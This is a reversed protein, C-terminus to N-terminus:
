EKFEVSIKERLKKTARDRIGRIQNFTWGTEQIVENYNKGEMYLLEVCKREHESLTGLATYLHERDLDNFLKKEISHYDKLHQNKLYSVHLQERRKADYFMNKMFVYLWSKFHIINEKQLKDCLKLFIDNTFDRADEHNKFHELSFALIHATYKEILCSVFRNDGTRKYAAIM